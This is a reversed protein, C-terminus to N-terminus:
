ERERVADLIQRGALVLVGATGAAALGVGVRGAVRVAGEHPVLAVPAHSRTRAEPRGPAPKGAQGAGLDDGTPAVDPAAATARRAVARREGPDDAQPPAKGQVAARLPSPAGGGTTTAPDDAGGEAYEVPIGAKGAQEPSSTGSPAVDSDYPATVTWAACFLTFRCLINIWILLGIVAAFTGYIPNGTTRALYVAGLLQLLLFGVAGLLAGRLVRRWPTQVKPLASFLFLFLGLNVAISVAYGIVKVGITGVLSGELNVLRLLFSTASTAFGSVLISALLAAGLGILIMTDRLKVLVVNGALVNQHWVSRIGARLADVWATGALLLGVIGIVGAGARATGVDNIDIQGGTCRFGEIATTCLLGPIYGGTAELVSRQADASGTLVFGLVFFALALLPFFSLFGPLSVSAALRDGADAVYRGYARAVHDLAPRRRRATGTAAKLRDLVGM